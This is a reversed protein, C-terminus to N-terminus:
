IGSANIGGTSGHGNAGRLTKDLTEIEQFNVHEYRQFVIQAIRDGKAIGKHKLGLNILNVKIEGRYGSDITGPANLVTIGSKSALGSRPHVLGVYGKPIALCIGTGILAFSHRLITVDEYSYLDAGADGDLAYTPVIADPYLKNVPVLM